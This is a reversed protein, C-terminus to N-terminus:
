WPFLNVSSSDNKAKSVVMGDFNDLYLDKVSYAGRKDVRVIPAPM